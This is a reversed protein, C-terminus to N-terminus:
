NCDPHLNKCDFSSLVTLVVISDICRVDLTSTANASSITKSICINRIIKTDYVRSIKLFFLFTVRSPLGVFFVVLMYFIQRNLSSLLFLFFVEAAFFSLAVSFAVSFCFLSLSVSHSFSCFRSLIPM